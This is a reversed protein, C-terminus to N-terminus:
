VFKPSGSKLKESIKERKNGSRMNDCKKLTLLTFKKIYSYKKLANISSKV